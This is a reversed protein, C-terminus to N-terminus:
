QAKQKWQFSQSFNRQVLKPAFAAAPVNKTTLMGANAKAIQNAEIVPATFNNVVALLACSIVAYIALILGLKIMAGVTITDNQSESM